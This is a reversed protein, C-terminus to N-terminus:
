YLQSESTVCNSHVTLGMLTGLTVSVCAREEVQGLVPLLSLSVSVLVRRWPVFGYM